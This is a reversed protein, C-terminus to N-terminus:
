PTVEQWQSLGVVMTTGGGPTDEITLEGGMAETFGRAIALGLGVGTGRDVLRQFPQFVEDRKAPDIGPGQDIVRLLVRGAVAGAEVRPPRDDSFKVANDVLNAVVRELLQPDAAVTPLDEHLELIVRSARTGLGALAGPVVEELATERISPAIVGAQLRSMELLADVLGSLRDTEEDITAFFEETQERGWRIESQRLSTITAKISALPTRLDHSVAQLLGARLDNAQALQIARAAEIQLRRTELVLAAQASLADLLRHDEATLRGGSLALVRDGGLPEHVDADGPTAPVPQGASAEIHWEDRARRLVAVSRAGFASRVQEVFRPLLLQDTLSGAMRAM